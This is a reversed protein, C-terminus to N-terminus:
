EEPSTKEVCNMDYYDGYFENLEKAKKFDDCAEKTRQLEWLAYGRTVYLFAYEADLAIAKTMWVVTSDFDQPQMQNNKLVYAEVTNGCSQLYQNLSENVKEQYFETKTTDEGLLRNYFMYSQYKLECASGQATKIYKEFEGMAKAYARSKMLNDISEPMQASREPENNQATSQINIESEESVQAQVRAGFGLMGLGLILTLGYKLAKM